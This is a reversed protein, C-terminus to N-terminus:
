RWDLEMHMAEPARFATSNRMEVQTGACLDLDEVEALLAGLAIPAEARALWSGICFHVGHGFVIHRNDVRCIDLAEPHEFVAPDRNAANIFPYIREGRRIRQGRIECDEAAIRVMAQVPGDYRFFEECAGPMLGPMDSRLLRLQDKHAALAMLALSILGATTEHGAYFLMACNAALEDDGLSEGEHSARVMRAIGDDGGCRRRHAIADRFFRDMERAAAAARPYKDKVGRAEGIFLHLDDSLRMLLQCDDVSTIGLMEGIVLVPLLNSFHRALDIRPARGLDRVLAAATQAIRPRIAEVSARNVVQNLLTRVRTHQPVDFFSMWGGVLEGLDRVDDSGPRQECYTRAFPRVFDVSMDMGTKVDEYGTLVWGRLEDSWHVPDQARLRAFTPYPDRRFERTLFQYGAPAEAATATATNM